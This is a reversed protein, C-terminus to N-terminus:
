LAAMAFGAIVLGALGGLIAFVFLWTQRSLVTVSGVAIAIEM